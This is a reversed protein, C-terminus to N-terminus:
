VIRQNVMQLQQMFCAHFYPSGKAYSKVCAAVSECYRLAEHIYGADLLSWVHALKYAQLHPFGSSTTASSKLSLVFELIETMRIAETHKYFTSQQQHDTGLLVIRASTGLGNMISVQPSLLYCVHAAEILNAKRLADGLASLAQQDNPTRNAILMCLMSQWRSLDMPPAQGM